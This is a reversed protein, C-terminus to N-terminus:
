LGFAPCECLLLLHSQKLLHPTKVSLWRSYLVDFYAHLRQTSGRLTGSSSGLLTYFDILGTQLCQNQAPNVRLSEFEWVPSVLVGVGSPWWTAGFKSHLANVLRHPM